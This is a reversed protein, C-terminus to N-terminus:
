SGDPSVQAFVERQTETQQLIKRVEKLTLSNLQSMKSVPFAIALVDEWLLKRLFDLLPARKGKHGSRDADTVNSVKSAIDRFNTAEREVRKASWVLPKNPKENPEAKNKSHGTHQFFGRSGELKQMMFDHKLFCRIFTCRKFKADLLFHGDFNVYLFICDEFTVNRINASKIHEPDNAMFLINKFQVNRLAAGQSLGMVLTSDSLKTNELIAGTLQFNKISTDEIEARLTAGVCEICDVVSSGIAIQDVTGAQL